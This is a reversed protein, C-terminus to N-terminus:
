ALRSAESMAEAVVHWVLVAGLGLALLTVVVNLALARVSVVAELAGDRRDLGVRVLPASAALVALVPAMVLLQDVVRSAGIAALVPEMAGRVPQVNLQYAVVSGSVVVFTPLLMLAAVVAFATPHRWAPGITMIIGGRLAAGAAHARQRIGAVAVDIATRPSLHTDALLAKLEDGYRRRWAPSYCLLLLTALRGAIWHTM